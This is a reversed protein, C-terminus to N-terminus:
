SDIVSRIRYALDQRTYPKSMILEKYVAKYVTGTSKGTYGSSLLVKIGPHEERVKDALEYGNMGGPMVIDTFVVDIKEKEILDIAETANLAKFTKYGLSGLYESALNLLDIEDDVVLVTESGQPMKMVREEDIVRNSEKEKVNARPLYIKISSGAGPSSDINISGDYRQVFGYVMSMGLGTGKGVPKTTYFPEFIHEIVEKSMGFGNDKIELMSYEGSSVGPSNSVFDNDLYIKSTRIIIEGGDPMADRANIVMNVIADELESQDVSVQWLDPELQYNVKVEPTVSKEIIDEIENVCFNVDVDSKGAPKARSFLLLQKTLEVCRQAAKSASEVWGLQKENDKVYAKLFELYGTVIGLQNNFDHAIGGSLQGVAEMKQSRRLMEETERKVTIDESIGLLFNAEGQSNFIPIKRTHLLRVGNNRTHIPEEPIDHLRGESIVKKDMDVYFAAEDETFFDFDNKGLMEERDLGTLEEAAKNWEVYRYDETRKVFLMAPLNEVISNKLENVDGLEQEVQKRDTIDRIIEVSGDLETLGVVPSITYDFWKNNEKNEIELNTIEDGHRSHQCIECDEADVGQPHFYDHSSGGILERRSNGTYKCAANNVQYIMGNKDVMITADPVADYTNAGRSMVTFPEQLTTRVMAMFILWYSFLKFIHGVLNSLGHLDIYFTFALEACATLMVSLLMIHIIREDILERKKWLHWAAAILITIILYESYIKTTTLGQGEVFMVPFNGSSVALFILVTIGSCVLFVLRYNLRAALYWPASLLLLAEFYRTAIWFQVTVDGSIDPFVSMGKFSIAHAMDLVGIWFYGIGLYMLYNNRTFPYMQWAVVCMLVAVIIAFLEALTHFLLFNFQSTVVLLVSLGIPILWSVGSLVFREEQQHSNISSLVRGKIKFGSAKVLILWLNM